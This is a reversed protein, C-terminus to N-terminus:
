MTESSNHQMVMIDILNHQLCMDQLVNGSTSHKNFDGGIIILHQLNSLTTLLSNLDIRFQKKVTTKLNQEQM